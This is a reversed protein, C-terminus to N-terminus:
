AKMKKRKEVRKIEKKTGHGKNQCKNETKKTEQINKLRDKKGGDRCIIFISSYLDWFTVFLSNILSLRVM